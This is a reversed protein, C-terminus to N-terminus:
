KAPTICGEILERVISGVSKEDKVAKARLQSVQAESLRLTLVRPYERM